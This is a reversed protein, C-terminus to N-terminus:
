SLDKEESLWAVAREYDTFHEFQFGVLDLGAKFFEIKEKRDERDPIVVALKNRFVSQYQVLELSLNLLEMFSLSGETDRLDVLVHHDRYHGAAEALKRIDRVAQGYDPKGHGTTGIFDTTTYKLLEKTM